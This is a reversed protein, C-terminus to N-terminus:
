ASSSTRTSPSLAPIAAPSSTTPTSRGCRSASPSRRARRARTRRAPISYVYGTAQQVRDVDQLFSQSSVWAEGTFSDLANARWYSPRSSQVKMIVVNNAPDLLQPYNQLWNFSYISSGQNFPNWARWDQWPAAAASPAAGLLLSPWCRAPQESRWGPFPTACGGPGASSAARCSWCAPPSCSSSSPSGCCGRSRTWPSASDWCCWCWRSAPSLGACASRWSPPRAPSATCPSPWCCACSPPAPWVSRSSSPRTSRRRGHGVARRLLPLPRRHGRRGGPAPHDHPAAPLRGGPAPGALAGLGQSPGPRCGRLLAAVIVARLLITSMSPQLARDLALAASAAMGIFCFLYLFRPLIKM